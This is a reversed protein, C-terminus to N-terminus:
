FEILFRFNLQRGTLYNPVASQQNRIDTIWYYSNVNNISLLNFVDMGLWINKVYKSFGLQIHKDENNVLRYSMGIDVRKYTPTRYVSEERGTHPPGFPLGGAVSAKLSMKWRDNHAFYDSFFLSCNFRQDTPRPLWQNNLKEETKMLSFSIWSDTKPVFEGFLKLDIGAAYGSSLNQGYYRIRVNDVNYPVLNSLAKYYLEATLKFPRNMAKFKYDGAAVFHISRQSKIQKNLTVTTNRNVTVTDRFEKYFPAQYYVGAALRLTFNENAKPILSISARPSVILEKNWNWYSARIGANVTVYGWKSSFRYTDQTYFSYRNSKIENKSALNYILKIGDSQYPLSYGASDRMEWERLQDKIKEKKLKMGWDVQHAGLKHNGKVSFSMVTAHLYNRAHEMYTGVGETQNQTTTADDSSTEDLSNLWYEGTIDYTEEENTKFVSSQLTIQHAKGFHRTLSLAGFYTQFLDKEKGDFYVKYEKLNELTGFQTTRDAPVFDYNNQSLYGMANVEWRQSPTWSVYTQYDLFQPSYEGKTDLSGLLYRSTKYRLGSSISFHKRSLGIYASGGLLSGAVSAEMLEPKKYTIDLVSSMKDGYKAEYGGASFGIKGVMDPNIISLGEQQGSRILLPRYIEIGNIYVSNEDFSGGRVNYQSSLENTSSVGAQTAIFSEVSGGSADPMLRANKLHLQSTSGTQRKRETITVGELQYDLDPLTVNLVVVGKPNRLLKKRTQYGLMSYVVMVSDKSPITLSYRGRLNTVTGILTGAIHVNAIEMPAGKEDSVLGVIKTKTQACLQTAMVIYVLLAGACRKMKM